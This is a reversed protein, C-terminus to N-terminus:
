LQAYANEYTEFCTWLGPSFFWWLNRTLEQKLRGQSIISGSLVTMHSMPETKWGNWLYSGPLSLKWFFFCFCFMFSFILCAFLSEMLSLFRIQVSQKSELMRFINTEVTFCVLLAYLAAQSVCRYLLLRLIVTTKVTGAWTGIRVAELAWFSVMKNTHPGGSSVFPM